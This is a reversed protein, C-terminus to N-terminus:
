QAEYMASLQKAAGPHRRQVRRWWAPGLVFVQRAPRPAATHMRVSRGVERRRMSSDEHHLRIHTRAWRNGDEWVCPARETGVLGFRGARIAADVLNNLRCGDAGETCRIRGGGRGWPPGARPPARRVSRRGRREDADDRAFQAALAAGGSPDLFDRIDDPVRALDAPTADPADARRVARRGAGCVVLPEEDSGDEAGEARWEIAAGTPAAPAAPAAPAEVHPARRAMKHRACRAAREGGCLVEAAPIM